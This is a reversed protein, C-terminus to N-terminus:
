SYLPLGRPHFYRATPASHSFSLSVNRKIFSRFKFQKEEEGASPFRRSFLSPPRLKREEKYIGIGKSIPRLAFSLSSTLSRVLTVSFPPLLLPLFSPTAHPPLPVPRIRSLFRVFSLAYLSFSCPLSSSFLPFSLYLVSCCDRISYSFIQYISPIRPTEGAVDAKYSTRVSFAPSITNM